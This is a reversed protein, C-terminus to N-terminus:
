CCMPALTARFAALRGGAGQAGARRSRCARDPARRVAAAAVVRTQGSSRGALRGGACRDPARQRGTPSGAGRCAQPPSARNTAAPWGRSAPRGSWGNSWPSPGTTASPLCAANRRRGRSCRWLCGHRHRRHRQPRIGACCRSWSCRGSWRRGPSPWSEALWTAARNPPWPASATEAATFRSRQRFRRAVASRGSVGATRKGADAPQVEALDQVVVRDTM